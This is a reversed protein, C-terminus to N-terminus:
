ALRSRIYAVADALTELQPYDDEPVEGGIAEALAGVLSLFDMSDLDAADRLPVAPDLHDPDVEPAVQSLADVLIDRARDDTM